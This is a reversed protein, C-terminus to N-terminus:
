KVFVKKVEGNCRMLYVGRGTPSAIRAGNLSYYETDNISSSVNNDIDVDGIGTVVKGGGMFDFSITGDEETINTIPKGMDRSNDINYNFLKGGVMTHSTDTLSRVSKSGPFMDGALQSLSPSYVSYMSNYTGYDNDAPIISMRQHKKSENVTNEVWASENYDVHVVMMGHLNTHTDVYEFWGTSQRNELIYYEDRNGENYVVYAFPTDQLAPMQSVTCPENLEVFNLWGCFWREYASYGAPSEGWGSRGNYSGSDMVDYCNMGFCGSYDTDYFDPLGLCHSFEHCATGIGDLTSGTSSRLECSVAYTDIRVGGLTIAGNGDGAFKAEELSFEHPWIVDEDDSAHEGYGAYVCFVQDVEGDGDWDYDSWNVDYQRDVLKCAEAVMVGPYKDDGQSDNRGYFSYKNSVTVPGFVDFTLDFQGYSQDFFYDHVSGNHGNKNYGVQNFQNYFAENTSAPKMKKDSFNVLIVVGKKKGKYASPYGFAKRVKSQSVSRASRAFRQANRQRVKQIMTNNLEDKMEPALRYIGKSVSIVPIGESTVLYHFSEDGRMMVMISDGSELAVKRWEKKAPIAWTLATMLLFIQFILVKKM